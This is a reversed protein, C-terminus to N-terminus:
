VGQGGSADIPNVNLVDRCISLLVAHECGRSVWRSIAIWVLVRADHELNMRLLKAVHRAFDYYTVFRCSQVGAGCLVQRVQTLLVAEQEMAAGFREFQDRVKGDVRRPMDGHILAREYKRCGKIVSRQSSEPLQRLVKSM